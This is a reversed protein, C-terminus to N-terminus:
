GLDGLFSHHPLKEQASMREVLDFVMWPDRMGITAIDSNLRAAFLRHTCYFEKCSRHSKRESFKSWHGRLHQLFYDLFSLLVQIGFSLRSNLYGSKKQCNWPFSVTLAMKPSTARTTTLHFSTTTWRHSFWWWWVSNRTVASAAHSHFVKREGRSSMGRKM